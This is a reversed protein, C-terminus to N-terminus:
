TLEEITRRLDPGILDPDACRLFAVLAKRIPVSSSDPDWEKTESAGAIRAVTLHAAEKDARARVGQLSSFDGRENRWRCLDSQPIFDEATVDDEHSRRCEPFLFEILVRSHLAISEVRQNRRLLDSAVTQQISGFLMYIEYALHENGYSRKREGDWASFKKLRTKKTCMRDPSLPANTKCM